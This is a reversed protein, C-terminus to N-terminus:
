RLKIRKVEFNIPEDLGPRSVGLSVISGVPGMIRLFRESDQMESCRNGDIAIIVDGIQMGAEKAPSQEAFGEVQVGEEIFSIRIGIGGSSHKIVKAWDEEDTTVLISYIKGERVLFEYTAHMYDIGMIRFEDGSVKATCTAKNGSVEWPSTIQHEHSFTSNERFTQELEDKGKLEIGAPEQRFVIDESLLSLGTELDGSTSANLFAEAVESPNMPTPANSAQTCNIGILLFILILFGIFRKMKVGQFFRAKHNGIIPLM